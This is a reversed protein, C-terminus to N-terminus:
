NPDRWSWLLKKHASGEDQKPQYSSMKRSDTNSEKDSNTSRNDLKMQGLLLCAKEYTIDIEKSDLETMEKGGKKSLYFQTKVKRENFSTAIEELISNAYFRINYRRNANFDIFVKSLSLTKGTSAIM